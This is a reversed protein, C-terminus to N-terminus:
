NCVRLKRRVQRINMITVVIMNISTSIILGWMGIRLLSLLPLLVLRVLVGLLNSTFNEKAMGLANLSSSLPAQIYQFLSIPALFRIYTGGENTNYILKLFLQPAIMLCITFLMGIFLSYSIGQKIKRKVEMMNKKKYNKTVEPLLAQSIANSFFSPLLLIPLCYGSIVGYEHVIFNNSYSVHLLINTLIIPELFYCVSGILNTLTTPISIELSDRLYIKSPKIDKKTLRFNKPLFLFLILISSIESFVNSIIVFCVAYEVGFKLFYPIGIIMVIIKVIDETIHSIVHPVMREKGFFYSRLIGSISSFPIVISIAILAYLCRKDHLLNYALFKSSFLIVLMIFLNIFISFFISTFVLRKNNKDDESVLKSVSIPMGFSALNLFLIFSPLIIMYLGIGDTKLFRAMVVKNIMGLIKTIVGGILLILTSKFFKEKM